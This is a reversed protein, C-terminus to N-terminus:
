EIPELEEEKGEKKEEKKEKEEEEELALVNISVGSGSENRRRRRRLKGEAGEEMKMGLLAERRGGENGYIEGREEHRGNAKEKRRRGM